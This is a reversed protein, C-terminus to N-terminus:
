EGTDGSEPELSIATAQIPADKFKAAARLALEEIQSQLKDMSVPESDKPKNNMSGHLVLARTDVKQIIAGKVRQDLWQATRLILEANKPILAGKKDYIPADLIDRIQEISHLLAEEMANMYAVPPCMIWALREKSRLINHFFYQRTCVGAYVNTMDMKGRVDQARNYENWFGVRLRNELPGIVNRDQKRLEDNVIKKLEREDADLYEPKEFAIDEIAQAVEEQRIINLVSRPAERDLLIVEKPPSEPIATHVRQPNADPTEDLPLPLLDAM